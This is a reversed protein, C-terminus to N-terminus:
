KKMWRKVENRIRIKAEDYTNKQSKDIMSEKKIM